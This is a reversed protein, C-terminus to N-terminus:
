EQASSTDDKIKKLLQEIRQQQEQTEDYFFRLEPVWRATIFPRLEVKIYANSKKFFKATAKKQEDDGLVTYYVSAVKLDPSMKVKTLTVFGKNPDSLKMEIIQGLTRKLSDAYRKIRRQEAM